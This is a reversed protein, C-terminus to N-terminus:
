TVIARGDSSSAGGLPRRRPHVTLSEFRSGLWGSLSYITLPFWYMEVMLAVVFSSFAGMAKWDRTSRRHFLKGRFIILVASNVIM